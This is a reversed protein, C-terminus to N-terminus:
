IGIGGCIYYRNKISYVLGYGSLFLFGETFVLGGSASLLFSLWHPNSFQTWSLIHLTLVNIMAVGMLETRYKSIINYSISLKIIFIRRFVVSFNSALKARKEM